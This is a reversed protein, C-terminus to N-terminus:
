CVGTEDKNTGLNNNVKRTPNTLVYQLLPHVYWPAFPFLFSQFKFHVVLSHEFCLQAILPLLRTFTRISVIALECMTDLLQTWHYPVRAVLSLNATHNESSVDTGITVAAMKAVREGLLLPEHCHCWCRTLQNM